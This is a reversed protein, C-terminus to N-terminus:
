SGAIPNTTSDQITQGTTPQLFFDLATNGGGGLSSEFSGQPLKNTSDGSPDGLADKRAALTPDNRHETKSCAAAALCVAGAVITTRISMRTTGRLLSSATAGRRAAARERLSATTRRSKGRPAGG